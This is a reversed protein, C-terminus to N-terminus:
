KAYKKASWLDLVQGSKTENEIIIISTIKVHFYRDKKRKITHIKIDLITAFITMYTAM